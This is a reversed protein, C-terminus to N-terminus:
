ASLRARFAELNPCLAAWKLLDALQSDDLITRLVISIEQPVSGFRAELVQVINEYMAEHRGESKARNVIEEILPSEIM